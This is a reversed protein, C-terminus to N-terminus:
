AVATEAYVLVDLEQSRASIMPNCGAYVFGDLNRSHSSIM